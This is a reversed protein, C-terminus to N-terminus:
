CGRRTRAGCIAGRWNLANEWDGEKMAQALLGRLGLFETEPHKLMQEFRDAGRNTTRSSPRRRASCSRPHRM